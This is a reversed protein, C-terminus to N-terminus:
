KRDKREGPAAAAAAWLGALLGAASSGLVQRHVFETSRLSSVQNV